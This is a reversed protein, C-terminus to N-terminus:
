AAATGIPFTVIISTGNGPRTRLELQGGLMEARERM